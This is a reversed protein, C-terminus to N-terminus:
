ERSLRHGLRIMPRELRGIPVAMVWSAGLVMLPAGVAGLPLFLAKYRDLYHGSHDLLSGALFFSALLLYVAGHPEAPGNLILPYGALLLTLGATFAIGLRRQAALVFPLAIYCAIEVKLTWASGNIADLRLGALTDGITPQLFNAFVLNAGV